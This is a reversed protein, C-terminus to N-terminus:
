SADGGAAEATWLPGVGTTEWWRPGWAALLLDALTEIWLAITELRDVAWCALDRLSRFFAAIWRLPDADANYRVERPWDVQADSLARHINGPVGVMVSDNAQGLVHHQEVTTKGQLASACEYCWIKGRKWQLVTPDAYGCTCCKADPGLTRVKRSRRGARNIAEQSM